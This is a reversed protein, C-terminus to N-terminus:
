KSEGIYFVISFRYRIFLLLHRRLLRSGSPPVQGEEGVQLLFELRRLRLYYAFILRGCGARQTVDGDDLPRREETRTLWFCLLLPIWRRQWLWGGGLFAFFFEM